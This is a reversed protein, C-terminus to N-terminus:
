TLDLTMGKVKEVESEITSLVEIERYKEVMHNYEEWMQDIGKRANNLHTRIKVIRPDDDPIGQLAQVGELTAVLSKYEREKEEISAKTSEMAMKLYIPSDSKIYM